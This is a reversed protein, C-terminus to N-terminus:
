FSEWKLTTIGEINLKATIPTNTRRGTPVEPLLYKRKRLTADSVDLNLVPSVLLSDIMSQPM